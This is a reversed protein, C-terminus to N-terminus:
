VKIKEQKFLEFLCKKKHLKLHATITTVHM